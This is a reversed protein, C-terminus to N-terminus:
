SVFFDAFPPLPPVTPSVEDTPCFPDYDSPQALTRKDSVQQSNQEPLYRDSTEADANWDFSFNEANENSDGMRNNVHLDEQQPDTSLIDAEANYRQSVKGKTARKNNQQADIRWDDNYEEYDAEVQREAAKWKNRQKWSNVTSPADGSGDTGFNEKAFPTSHVRFQHREENVRGHGEYDRSGAQDDHLWFSTFEDRDSSLRQV